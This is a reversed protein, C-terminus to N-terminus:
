RRGVIQEKFELDYKSTQKRNLEMRIDDYDYSKRLIKWKGNPRKKNKGLLMYLKIEEVERIPLSIAWEYLERIYKRREKEGKGKWYFARRQYVNDYEKPYELFSYKEKFSIYGNWSGDEKLHGQCCGNTFYNKSNLQILIDWMDRDLINEVESMPINLIESLKEAKTM